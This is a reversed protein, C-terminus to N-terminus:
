VVPDVVAQHRDEEEQDAELDLALHQDSLEGRPSVGYEGDSACEAAHDHGGPNVRREVRGAGASRAPADRHRGVNRERNADKREQARAYWQRELDKENGQRDDVVDARDEDDREEVRAPDGPSREGCTSYQERGEGRTIRDAYTV